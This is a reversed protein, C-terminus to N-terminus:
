FNFIGNIKLIEIFKSDNHWKLKISQNWRVRMTIILIFKHFRNRNDPKTTDLLDNLSVIM